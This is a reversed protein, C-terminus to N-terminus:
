ISVGSSNCRWHNVPTCRAPTVAPAEVGSQSISPTSVLILSNVSSFTAWAASSTASAVSCASSVASCTVSVVSFTSAVVSSTASAVSSTSSTTSSTASVVSSSTSSAASSLASAWSSCSSGASSSGLILGSCILSYSTLIGVAPAITCPLTTCIELSSTKTSM